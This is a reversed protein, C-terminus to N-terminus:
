KKGKLIINKIKTFFTVNKKTIIKQKLKENLSILYNPQYLNEKM